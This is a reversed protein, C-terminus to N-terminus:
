FPVLYPNKLLKFFIQWFKMYYPVGIATVSGWGIILLINILIVYFTIFAMEAIKQKQWKDSYVKINPKFSASIWHKSLSSKIKCTNLTFYIQNEQIEYTRRWDLASCALCCIKKSTSFLSKFKLSVTWYTLHTLLTIM